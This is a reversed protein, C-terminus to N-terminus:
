SRLNIKNSMGPRMDRIRTCGRILMRCKAGYTFYHSVQIHPNSRELGSTKPTGTRRTLRQHLFRINTTEKRNEEMISYKISGGEYNGLDMYRDM